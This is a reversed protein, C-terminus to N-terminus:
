ILNIKSAQWYFDSKIENLRSISRKFSEFGIGNEYIKEPLTKALIILATKNEYIEDIFLTFRRAENVEEKSILPLKLLFILDFKKCISQYDSAAFEQRCIEDFSVIAIKKHISNKNEVEENKKKFVSAVQNVGDEKSFSTLFPSLFLIDFTKKIKVERGWVKIKTSKPKKGETFNEIIKKVKERNKKNSIFYRLTLNQLYQSRYDINSDLHLIDCNKLLIKNVFELFVERQLGNTYLNQPHSNSTFVVIIGHLFLNSFIRSLLMADAIDVVQFEDFCILKKEGVVRKIAELLEDKYKKEEKRIDHLAEHIQRMFSNFHFYVKNAKVVSNFFEKMLMTKGRGVGGHIYISNIKPKKCFFRFFNSNKKKELDSALQKLKSQILIQKSDLTPIM